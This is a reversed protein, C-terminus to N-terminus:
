ANALAVQHAQLGEAYEVPVGREVLGDVLKGEVALQKVALEGAKALAHEFDSWDAQYDAVWQQYKAMAEEDSMERIDAKLQRAKKSFAVTQAINDAAEIKTALGVAAMEAVTIANRRAIDITLILGGIIEDIVSGTQNEVYKYASALTEFTLARTDENDVMYHAISLARQNISAAANVAAIQNVTANIM